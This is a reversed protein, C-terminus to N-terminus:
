EALYLIILRRLVGAQMDFVDGYILPDHVLNVLLLLRRSWAHMLTLGIFAALGTAQLLRIFIM